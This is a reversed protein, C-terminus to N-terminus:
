VANLQTILFNIIDIKEGRKSPMNLGNINLTVVLLTPNSGAM